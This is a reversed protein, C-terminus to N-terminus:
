SEALVKTTTNIMKKWNERSIVVMILGSAEVIIIKSSLLSQTLWLLKTSHVENELHSRFYCSVLCVVYRSVFLYGSQKDPKM